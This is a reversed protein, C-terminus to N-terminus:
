STCMTYCAFAYVVSYIAYSITVSHAPSVSFQPEFDHCLSAFLRAANQPTPQARRLRSDEEYGEYIFRIGKKMKRVWGALDISLSFDIDSLGVYNAIAYLM